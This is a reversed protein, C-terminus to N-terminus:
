GHLVEIRVLGLGLQLPMIVLPAHAYRVNEKEFDVAFKVRAKLVDIQRVRAKLVDIQRLRAKHRVRSEASSTM